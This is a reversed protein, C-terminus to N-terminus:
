GYWGFSGPGKGGLPGCMDAVTVGGTGITRQGAFLNGCETLLKTRARLPPANRGIQMQEVHHPEM